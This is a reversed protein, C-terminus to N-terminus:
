LVFGVALQFGSDFKKMFGFYSGTISLQQSKIKFLQMISVKNYFTMGEINLNFWYPGASLPNFTFYYKYLGTGVM